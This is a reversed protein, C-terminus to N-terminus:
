VGEAAAKGRRSSMTSRGDPLCCVGQHRQCESAWRIQLGGTREGYAVTCPQAHCHAPHTRRLGEAACSPNEGEAPGEEHGAARMVRARTISPEVRRVQHQRRKAATKKQQEVTAADAKDKSAKRRARETEEEEAAEAEERAAREKLNRQRQKERSRGGSLM